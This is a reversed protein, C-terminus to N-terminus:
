RIHPCSQIHEEFVILAGWLKETLESDVASYKIEQHVFCTAAYM